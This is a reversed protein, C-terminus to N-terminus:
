SGRDDQDRSQCVNTPGMRWLFLTGRLSGLASRKLGVMVENIARLRFPPFRPSANVELANRATVRGNAPIAEIREALSTTSLEPLMPKANKEIM